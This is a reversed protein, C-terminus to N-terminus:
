WADRVLTLNILRLRAPQETPGARAPRRFYAYRPLQKKFQESHWRSPVFANPYEYYTGNRATIFSSM